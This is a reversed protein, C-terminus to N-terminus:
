ESAQIQNPGSVMIEAKGRYIKITGTVCIRRDGLSEPAYPFAARNSGWIVATFVQNPYPKDLNLFTPQGRTSTAYKASAVRGCVTAMEGVHNIADDPSIKLADANGSSPAGLIVFATLLALKGVMFTM